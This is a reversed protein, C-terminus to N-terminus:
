IKTSIDIFDEALFDFSNINNPQKYTNFENVREVYITRLGADKAALLDNEHAAVLAVESSSLDLYEIYILIWFVGQLLVELILHHNM